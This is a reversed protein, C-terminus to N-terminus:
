LRALSILRYFIKCYLSSASFYNKEVLEKYQYLCHKQNFLSIRFMM